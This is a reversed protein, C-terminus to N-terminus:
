GQTPYHTLIDDPVYAFLLTISSESGSNESKLISVLGNGHQRIICDALKEAPLTHIVAGTSDAYSIARRNTFLYSQGSVLKRKVTPAVAFVAIFLILLGGVFNDSCFQHLTTFPEAPYLLWCSNVFLVVSILLPLYEKARQKPYNAKGQWIIVEGDRLPIPTNNNM